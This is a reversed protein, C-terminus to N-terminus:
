MGQHASPSSAEHALADIQNRRRGPDLVGLMYYGTGPADAAATDVYVDGYNLLRGILSQSFKVEQIRDLQAGHHSYSLFGTRVNVRRDTITYITFRRILAGAALVFLWAILTFFVIKVTPLDSDSLHEILLTLVLPLSVLTGWKIYFGIVMSQWSRMGQWVPDEGNMLEIALKTM